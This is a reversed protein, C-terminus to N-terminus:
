RKVSLAGGTNRSKRFALRRKDGTQEVQIAKPLDLVPQQASCACAVAAPYVVTIPMERRLMAKRVHLTRFINMMEAVMEVASDADGDKSPTKVFPASHGTYARGFEVLCDWLSKPNKSVLDSRFGARVLEHDMPWYTFIGKRSDIYGARTLGHIFGEGRQTLGINDEWLGLSRAWDKRRPPVKRFYDESFVIAQPDVTYFQNIRKPQLPETRKLSAISQGGGASGKNKEQREINIIRNIRKASEKGKLILSLTGRKQLIMTRLKQKSQEEDFGALLLNVFIEGDNVLIAWLLLFACATERKEADNLLISSIAMADLNELILVDDATRQILRLLHFVDKINDSKLHWHQPGRVLETWSSATVDRKETYMLVLDNARELTRELGVSYGIKRLFIGYPDSHATAAM